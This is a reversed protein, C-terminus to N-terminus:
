PRDSFRRRSQGRVAMLRRVAEPRLQSRGFRAPSAQEFLSRPEDALRAGCRPCPGGGPEGADLHVTLRCDPCHQYRM